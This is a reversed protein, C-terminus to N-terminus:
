PCMNHSSVGSKVHRKSAVIYSSGPISPHPVGCGGTRLGCRGARAPEVDGGGGRRGMRGRGALPPRRSLTVDCPELEGIEADGAGRAAGRGKALACTGKKQKRIAHTAGVRAPALRPAHAARVVWALWLCLWLTPVLCLRALPSARSHPARVCAHLAVPARLLPFPFHRQPPRCDLAGSLILRLPPLYFTFAQLSSM